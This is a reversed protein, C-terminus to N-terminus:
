RPPWLKWKHGLMLGSFCLLFGSLYLSWWEWLLQMQTFEPHKMWWILPYVGSGITAMLLVILIGKKFAMRSKGEM